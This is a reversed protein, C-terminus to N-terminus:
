EEVVLDLRVIVIGIGGVGGVGTEEALLLAAVQLSQTSQISQHISNPFPFPPTSSHYHFLHLMIIIIFFFKWNTLTSVKILLLQSLSREVIAEIGEGKRSSSYDKEKRKKM